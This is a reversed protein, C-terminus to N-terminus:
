VEIYHSGRWRKSLRPDVQIRWASKWPMPLVYLADLDIHNLILCGPTVTANRFRLDSPAPEIGAPAILNKREMGCLMIRHASQITEYCITGCRYHHLLVIFLLVAELFLM